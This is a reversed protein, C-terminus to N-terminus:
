STIVAAYAGAISETLGFAVPDASIKSSLNASWALLAADKDPLFGSPM